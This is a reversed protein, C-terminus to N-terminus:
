FKTNAYKEIAKAADLEWPYNLDWGQIETLPYLYPTDGVFRGDSVMDNYKRIFIGGNQRYLPELDRAVVHVKAAPNHNIPSEKFWFHDKIETASVLSDNDLNLYTNIADQYLTSNIFPNTLHAWLVLDSKFFSLMNKIMENPTTSIEDCFKEERKVFIVNHKKCLERVTEDNSGVIINNLSAVNKLQLIKREILSINGLTEWAKNPIRTSGKRSIIVGTINM